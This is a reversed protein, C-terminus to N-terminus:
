RQPISILYVRRTPLESGVWGGRVMKKQKRIYIEVLPLNLQSNLFESLFATLENTFILTAPLEVTVKLRGVAISTV